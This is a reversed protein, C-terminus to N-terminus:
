QLIRFGSGGESGNEAVIEVDDGVRPPVFEGVQQVVHDRRGGWHTVTVSTPCVAVRCTTPALTVETRWPGNSELARASVVHATADGLKSASHLKSASRAQAPGVVFVALAGALALPVYKM